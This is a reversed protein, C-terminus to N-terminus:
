LVGGWTEFWAAVQTPALAPGVLAGQARRCGAQLALAWEAPSDCGDCVVDLGRDHLSQVTAAFAEAGRQSATARALAEAAIKVETLPLRALERVTVRARGFGDVGLGFGRVRLRTLLDLPAASPSAGRADPLAVCVRALEVGARSAWGALREVIEADAVASPPLVLTVDVLEGAEGLRRQTALGAGAVLKAVGAASLGPGPGLPDNAADITLPPGAGGPEATREARVELAGLRGSALEVRPRVSVGVRQDRLAAAWPDADDAGSGDGGAGGAGAAAAATGAPRHLGVAQLLLRATLPKRIAGLVELGYGRATAAASRLVGDDLGSAIIIATGSGLLSVRRLFEVGDMGPMDLDCVIIDPRPDLGFLALASEGDDAELLAAAGLNALIQLTTRRQFEHDEVVMVTCDALTM